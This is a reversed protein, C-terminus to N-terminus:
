EMVKISIDANLALAGDLNEVQVRLYRTGQANLKYVANTNAKVMKGWIYYVNIIEYSTNAASGKVHFSYSNDPVSISQDPNFTTWATGGDFSVSLTQSAHTNHVLCSQLMESVTIETPAVGANGNSHEALLDSWDKSQYRCWTSHDESADVFVRFDRDGKCYLMFENYGLAHLHNTSAVTAGAAISDLGTFALLSVPPVPHVPM